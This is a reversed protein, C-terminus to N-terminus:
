SSIRVDEKHTHRYADVINKSSKLDMGTRARFTKIAEIPRGDHILSKEESSLSAAMEQLKRESEARTMLEQQLHKVIFKIESTPSEKLANVVQAPTLKM